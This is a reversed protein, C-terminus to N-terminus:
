RGEHDETVDSARGNSVSRMRDFAPRYLRVAMWAGWGRGEFEERLLPELLCFM